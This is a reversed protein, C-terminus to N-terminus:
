TGHLIYVIYSLGEGLLTLKSSRTYSADTVHQISMITLSSRQGMIIEGGVEAQAAVQFQYEAGTILGAIDVSSETSPVVIFGSTAQRKQNGTLQYSILYQTIESILIRDWSVRVSTNTLVRVAVLNVM